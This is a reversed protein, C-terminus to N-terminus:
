LVYMFGMGIVKAISILQAGYTTEAWAGWDAFDSMMNEYSASVDGVAKAVLMGKEIGAQAVQAATPSTNPDVYARLWMTMMHGVFLSMGLYWYDQWRSQNLSASALAIYLNMLPIPVLPSPYYVPNVDGTLTAAVSMTVQGGTNAVSVVTSGGPLGPGVMLMGPALSPWGFPVTIVTNGTVLAVNALQVPPGFFQVLGCALLDACSYPPNTGIIVGSANALWWPIFSSYWGGGWWGALVPTIDPAGM